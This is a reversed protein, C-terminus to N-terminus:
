KVFYQLQVFYEGAETAAIGVHRVFLTTGAPLSDLKLTLATTSGVAKASEIAVATVLEAGGATTGVAVTVTGTYATDTAQTFVVRADLLVIEDPFYAVVYDTTSATGSDLNIPVTKVIQRKEKGRLLYTGIRSM